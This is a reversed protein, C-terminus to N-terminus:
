RATQIMLRNRSHKNFKRDISSQHSQMWTKKNYKIWHTIQETNNEKTKGHIQLTEKRQCKMNTELNTALVIIHIM